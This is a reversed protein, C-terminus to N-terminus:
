FEGFGPLSGSEDNDDPSSCQPDALEGNPGGNYDIFGDGDNDIGDSCEPAPGPPPPSTAVCSSFDFTCSSSCGLTGSAFGQNTCSSGGLNSGDCDEGSDIIGNGCSSSTVIVDADCAQTKSQSGSTILVSGSKTGVTVYSVIAPNVDGEDELPDDGLWDFTYSGVGEGGSVIATWTVQEGVDVSSPSASCTAVIPIGIKVGGGGGPPPGGGGGGGGPPPPAGPTGANAAFDIWGVIESGWAFNHLNDDTLMVGYNDGSMSIWGDWGGRYIDNKLAGSCGSAFVSCVRIWGTVSDGELQAPNASTGPGTPYPGTPAFDIWGINDSWAFGTFDGSASLNVGYSSTACVNTDTCNFSIWGITDSWAFGSVNDATSASVNVVILFLALAISVTLISKKLM